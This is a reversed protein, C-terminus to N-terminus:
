LSLTTCRGHLQYVNVHVDSVFQVLKQVYIVRVHKLWQRYGYEPLIQVCYICLTIICSTLLIHRFALVGNFCCHM